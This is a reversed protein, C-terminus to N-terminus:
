SARRGGVRGGVRRRGALIAPPGLVGAVAVVVGGAVGVGGLLAEVDFRGGGEGGDGGGVGGVRSSAARDDVGRGDRREAAPGAGLPVAVQGTRGCTKKVAVAGVSM